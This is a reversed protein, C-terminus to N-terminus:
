RYGVGRIYDRLVEDEIEVETLLGQLADRTYVVGIPKHTADLVPVRQLDRMRMTLWVDHLSDTERCSVVDRTMIMDVRISFTSGSPHRSVEAVIDTKTVVGAMIGEDCVVLLDLHPKAMVEAADKVLAGIDVVALRERARALIQEVLM